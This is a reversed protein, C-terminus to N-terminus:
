NSQKAHDTPTIRKPDTMRPFSNEFQYYNEFHKLLPLPSPVTAFHSLCHKPQVNM